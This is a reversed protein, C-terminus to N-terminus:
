AAKAALKKEAPTVNLPAAAEKGEGKPALAEAPSYSYSYAWRIALLYVLVAGFAYSRACACSAVCNAMQAVDEAAVAGFVYIVYLAAWPLAAMSAARGIPSAAVNKAYPALMPLFLLASM